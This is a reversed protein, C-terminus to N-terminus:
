SQAAEIKGAVERLMKATELPVTVFRQHTEATLMAGFRQSFDNAMAELQEAKQVLSKPDMVKALAEKPLEVLPATAGRGRDFGGQPKPRELQEAVQGILAVGSAGSWYDYADVVRRRYFFFVYVDFRGVPGNYSRDQHRCLYLAGPDESSSQRGNPIAFPNGDPVYWGDNLPLDINVQSEGENWAKAKTAGKGYSISTATIAPLFKRINHWNTRIANNLVKHPMMKRPDYM